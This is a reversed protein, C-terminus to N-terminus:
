QSSLEELGNWALKLTDSSGKALPGKKHLVTCNTEEGLVNM